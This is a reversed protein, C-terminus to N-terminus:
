SRTANAHLAARLWSKLIMTSTQGSYQNKEGLKCKEPGQHPYHLQKLVDPQLTEPIVIHTGKLILGNAVTLEDTTGILIFIPLAIHLLYIM